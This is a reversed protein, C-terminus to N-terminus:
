DFYKQEFRSNMKRIPFDLKYDDGQCTKYLRIQIKLLAAPLPFIRKLCIIAYESCSPVCLCRRRTKESAYHQYCYVTQLFCFRIYLESTIIMMAVFVFTRFIATSCVLLSLILELSLLLPVLSFLFIVYWKKTSPRKLTRSNVISELKKQKTYERRFFSIDM